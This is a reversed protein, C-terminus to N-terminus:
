KNPIMLIFSATPPDKPGRAYNRQANRFSGGVHPGGIIMHGGQHIKKLKISGGMALTAGKYPDHPTEINVQTMSM